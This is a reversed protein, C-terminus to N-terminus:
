TAADERRPNEKVIQVNSFMGADGNIRREAMAAYQPNLEILIANRGLRDAVLGSTGAGGFPDLIVCPTIVVDHKCTPRWGLTKCTPPELMTGSARTDGKEHTRESRDIIMATREVVREWPAGCKACCGKESTGAKICPEILSPPFTAFHAEKFPQTAVTWVSRRNRLGTENPENGHSDREIDASNDFSRGQTYSGGGRFTKANGKPRVQARGLQHEATKGHDFRSGKWSSNAVAKMKGNTKGPVRDSGDQNDIDQALRDVSSAAIPEAIAEADFYYRPSKSLLFLYEHGKTCRDTVSEPMPNPKSNHTLVGSAMAFLHPEDAVGLDYVERCRAKRIKVVEGMNKQNCHGSREM